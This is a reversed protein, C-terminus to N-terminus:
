TGSAAIKMFEENTIGFFSDVEYISYKGDLLVLLENYIAAGISGVLIVTWFMIMWSGKDESFMKLKLKDRLIKHQIWQRGVFMGFFITIVM